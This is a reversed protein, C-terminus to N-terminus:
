ASQTPSLDSRFCATFNYVLSQVLLPAAAAVVSIKSLVVALVAHM